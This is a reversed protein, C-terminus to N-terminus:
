KSRTTRKAATKKATSAKKATTGKKAATTRAASSKTGAAKSATKRKPAAKKKGTLGLAKGVPEVVYEDAKKVVTKAANKVAKGVKALTGPKRKTVM